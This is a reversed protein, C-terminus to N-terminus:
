MRGTEGAVGDRVMELLRERWRTDARTYAIHLDASTEVPEVGVVGKIMRLATLTAQADDERMDEALTVVYGAHTTM